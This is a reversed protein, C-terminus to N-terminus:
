DNRGKIDTMLMDHGKYTPIENFM